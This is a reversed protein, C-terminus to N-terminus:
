LGIPGLRGVIARVPVGSVPRGPRGTGPNAGNAKGAGGQYAPETEEPYGDHNSRAEEGDQGDPQGCGGRRLARRGPRLDVQLGGAGARAGAVAAGGGGPLDGQRGRPLQRDVDDRDAVLLVAAGLREVGEDRDLAVLEDVSTSRLVPEYLTHATISTLSASPWSFCIELSGCLTLMGYGPATMDRRPNVRISSSTTMAMM